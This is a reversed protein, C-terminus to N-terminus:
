LFTKVSAGHKSMVSSSISMETSSKSCSIRRQAGSRMQCLHQRFCDFLDLAHRQTQLRPTRLTQQARNRVRRKLRHLARAEAPRQPECGLPRAEVSLLKASAPNVRRADLVRRLQAVEVRRAFVQARLAPVVKQRPTGVGCVLSRPRSRGHRLAGEERPSLQVLDPAHARERQAKQSQRAVVLQHAGEVTM